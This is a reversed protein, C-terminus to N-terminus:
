ERTKFGRAIWLALGTLALVAIPAGIAVLHILPRGYPDDAEPLSGARIHADIDIRPYFLPAIMYDLQWRQWFRDEIYIAAVWLASLVIWLRWYGNIRNPVSM